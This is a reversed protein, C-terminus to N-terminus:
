LSSRAWYEALEAEADAPIEHWGDFKGLLQQIYFPGSERLRKCREGQFNNVRQKCFSQLHNFYLARREETPHINPLAAHWLQGSFVVADGAQAHVEVQGPLTDLGSPPVQGSKHSGPVVLLPGKELDIDDLYYVCNISIPFYWQPPLPDPYPHSDLHWGIPMGKGPRIRTANVSEMQVKPGMLARILNFTPPHVLLPTFIEHKEIIDEVERIKVEAFMEVVVDILRKVHDPKLAGKIIYYGDRMFAEAQQQLQESM